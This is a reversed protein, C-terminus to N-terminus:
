KATIGLKALAKQSSNIGYSNECVLNSLVSEGDCDKHSLADIVDSKKVYVEDFKGLCTYTGTNWPSHSLCNGMRVIDKCGNLPLYGEDFLLYNCSPNGWVDGAQPKRKEPENALKKLQELEAELDEIKSNIKDKNM